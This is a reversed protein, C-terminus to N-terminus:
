RSVPQYQGPGARRKRSSTARDCGARARAAMAEHQRPDRRVLNRDHAQNPRVSSRGRDFEPALRRDGPRTGERTPIESHDYHRILGRAPDQEALVDDFALALDEATEEGVWLIRHGHGDYNGCALGACIQRILSSKGIGGRGAIITLRRMWALGPVLEELPTPLVDALNTGAPASADPVPTPFLALNGPAPAPTLADIRSKAWTATIPLMRSRDSLDYGAAHWEGIIGTAITWPNISEGAGIAAKITANARAKVGAEFQQDTLLNNTSTQDHM